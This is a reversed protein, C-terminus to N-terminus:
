EEKSDLYLYKMMVWGEEGNYTIRGWGNQFQSILLKTGNPISKGKKAGSVSPKERMNLGSGTNTNIVYTGKIERGTRELEQM